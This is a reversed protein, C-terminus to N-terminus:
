CSDTAQAPVSIVQQRKVVLTRASLNMRPNRPGAEGEPKLFYTRQWEGAKEALHHLIDVLRQATVSNARLHQVCIVRRAVPSFTFMAGGDPAGAFNQVLLEEYIGSELGAPVVGFDCYLVLANANDHRSLTISCTVGGVDLPAGRGISEPDGLRSLECFDRILREGDTM